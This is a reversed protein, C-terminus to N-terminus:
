LLVVTLGVAVALLLGVGWVLRGSLMTAAAGLCFLGLTLSLFLAATKLLTM